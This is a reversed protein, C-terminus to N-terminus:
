DDITVVVAQAVLPAENFGMSILLGGGMYSVISHEAPVPLLPDALTGIVQGLLFEWPKDSGLIVCILTRIDKIKVNRHRDAANAAATLLNRRDGEPMNAAYIFARNQFDAWNSGRSQLFEDTLLLNEIAYCQLRFRTVCGVPDLGQQNGDGDRVSYAIPNDQIATLVDNCFSELDSLEQVSDAEVPFIRLKGQASRAAQQLVRTDDEGEVLFIPEEAIIQSLPHAFFKATRQFNATLTRPTVVPNDFYKTGIRTGSYASLATSLSTSHTSVIIALRNRKLESLKEVQRIIFSALRAQMDPHLHVDPEDIILINTKNEDISEFYYLIESAIAAAESEGSSVSNSDLYAGLITQFSFTNKSKNWVLRVNLFLSNIDDLYESEFTKETHRLGFDDNLKRGWEMSLSRLHNIAASKFQQFQNSARNNPLWGPDSNISADINPNYDYFGGREPSLYTINITQDPRLASEMYRLFRSKGSGNRGVIVNITAPNELSAHPTSITPLM